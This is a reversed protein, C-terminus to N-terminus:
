NVRKMGSLTYRSVVEAGTGGDTEVIRGPRRWLPFTKDEVLSIQFAQTSM